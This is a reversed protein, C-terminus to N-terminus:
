YFSMLNLYIIEFKYLLKEYHEHFNLAYASALM